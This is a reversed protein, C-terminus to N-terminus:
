RWDLERAHAPWVITDDGGVVQHFVIQDTAAVAIWQGDPSWAADFAIFSLERGAFCGMDVLETRGPAQVLLGCNDPSPDVNLPDVDTSDESGLSVADTRRGPGFRRVVGNTLAVLLSGDVGWHAYAITADQSVITEGAVFLRRGPAFALRGEPDYGVPCSELARPEEDGIDLEFGNGDSDCWALRQADPSWLVDRSFNTISALEVGARRLDVIAFSDGPSGRVGGTDYAIRQGIPAAWLRCFGVLNGAPRERGGGLGIVRIRCDEADTFVLTGRLRGTPWDEPADPQPSPGDRRDPVTQTPGASSDDGSSRLADALAFGGLLVVAAVIALDRPKL